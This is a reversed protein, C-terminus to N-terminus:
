TVLSPGYMLSPYLSYFMLLSDSFFFLVDICVTKIKWVSTGWSEGFDEDLNDKQEPQIWPGEWTDSQSTHFAVVNLMKFKGVPFTIFHGGHGLYMQRNMAREEGLVEIAQAIPVLARYAVKKTFVPFTIPNEAGYVAARCASKIGDCGVIVDAQAETGDAFIMISKGDESHVISTLRKKFVASGEPVLKVLEDLFQSRAATSQTMDSEMRIEAIRKGELPGREGYQFDFWVNSKAEWGNFTAVKKYGEWVAPDILSMALHSNAGFGIGAGIESFAGTAEYITFTLHPFKRLGIAFALGGIGGGVIAIHIPKPASAAMRAKPKPYRNELKLPIPFTENVIAYYVL